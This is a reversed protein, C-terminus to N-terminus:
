TCSCQYHTTRQSAHDWHGLHCWAFLQRSDSLFSCRPSPDHRFGHGYGVLNWRLSHAWWGLYLLGAFLIVREVELVVLLLVELLELLAEEHLEVMLILRYKPTIDFRHRSCLLMFYKVELCENRRRFVLIWFM